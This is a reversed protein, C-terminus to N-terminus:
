KEMVYNQNVNQLTFILIVHEESYGDVLYCLTVGLIAMIMCSDSIFYGSM